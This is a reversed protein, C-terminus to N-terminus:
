LLPLEAASRGLARVQPVCPSGPGVNILLRLQDRHRDPLLLIRVNVLARNLAVGREIFLVSVRVAITHVIFAQWVIRDGAGLVLEAGVLVFRLSLSITSQQNNITSPKNLISKL